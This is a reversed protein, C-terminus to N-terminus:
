KRRLAEAAKGDKMHEIAMDIAALNSRAKRGEPKMFMEAVAAGLLRGMPNLNAMTRLAAAQQIFYGFPTHLGAVDGDSVELDAVLTITARVVCEWQREWADRDLERRPFEPWMRRALLWDVDPDCTVWSGDRFVQIM